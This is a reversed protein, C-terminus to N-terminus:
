TKQLLMQLCHGSGSHIMLTLKNDAPILQMYRSTVICSLSCVTNCPYREAEEMLLSCNQPFSIQLPLSCTLLVHTRLEANNYFDSISMWALSTDPDFIVAPFYHKESILQLLSVWDTRCSSHTPSHWGLLALLVSLERAWGPCPQKAEPHQAM